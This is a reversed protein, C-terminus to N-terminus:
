NDQGYYRDSGHKRLFHKDMLETSIRGPYPNIKETAAALRAIYELIEAADVAALASLGWTFPGHSAVLAGPFSLPDLRNEGFHEVIVKGTNAEYQSVIEEATM